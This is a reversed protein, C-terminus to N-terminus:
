KQIILSEYNKQRWLVPCFWIGFLAPSGNNGALKERLWPTDYDSPTFITFSPEISSTIYLKTSEQLIIKLKRRHQSGWTVSVTPFKTMSKQTMAERNLWSWLVVSVLTKRYKQPQERFHGNRVGTKAPVPPIRSQNGQKTEMESRTGKSSWQRLCILHSMEVAIFAHAEPLVVATDTGWSHSQQWLSHHSGRAKSLASTGATCM